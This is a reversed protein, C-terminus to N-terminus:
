KNCVYSKKKVLLNLEIVLLKMEEKMCYIQTDKLIPTKKGRLFDLRAEVMKDKRSRYNCYETLNSSYEEPFDSLILFSSKRSFTKHNSYRAGPCEQAGRLKDGSIDLPLEDNGSHEQIGKRRTKRVNEM